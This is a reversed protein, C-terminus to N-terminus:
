FFFTTNPAPVFVFIYEKGSKEAEMLVVDINEGESLVNENDNIDIAKYYSVNKVPTIPFAANM